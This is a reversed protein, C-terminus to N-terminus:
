FFTAALLVVLALLTTRLTLATLQLVSGTSDIIVMQMCQWNSSNPAMVFPWFTVNFASDALTQWLTVNYAGIGCELQAPWNMQDMNHCSSNQLSFKLANVYTQLQDQSPLPCIGYNNTQYYSNNSNDM